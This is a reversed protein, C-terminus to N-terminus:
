LKEDFDCANSCEAGQEVPAHHDKRVGSSVQDLNVLGRPEQRNFSSGVFEYPIFFGPEFAPSKM